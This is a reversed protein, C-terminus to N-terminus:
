CGTSPIGYRELRGMAQVWGLALATPRGGELWCAQDGRRAYFSRLSDRVDSLDPHGLWPHPARGLLGPIGRQPPPESGAAARPAVVCFLALAIPPLAAALLRVLRAAGRPSRATRM